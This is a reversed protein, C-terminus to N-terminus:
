HSGRETNKEVEGNIVEDEWKREPKEWGKQQYQKWKLKECTWEATM